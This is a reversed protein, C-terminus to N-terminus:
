DGGTQKKGSLDARKRRSEKPDAILPRYIEVRDGSRVVHDLAVKRSFIGVRDPQVVMEPFQERIASREIAEGVTCGPPVEVWVIAQREATAYAVEVRLTQPESDPAM